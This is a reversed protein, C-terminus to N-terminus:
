HLTITSEHIMQRISEAFAITEDSANDNYKILSRCHQDIDWILSKAEHGEVADTFESEEDPLTFQLSAKM